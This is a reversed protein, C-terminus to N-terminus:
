VFNFEAIFNENFHIRVITQKSRLVGPNKRFYLDLCSCDIFAHEELLIKQFRNIYM